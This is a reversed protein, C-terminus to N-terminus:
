ESRELLARAHQALALALYAQSESDDFTSGATQHSKRTKGLAADLGRTAYSQDAYGAVLSLSRASGSVSGTVLPTPIPTGSASFAAKWLKPIGGGAVGMRERTPAILLANLTTAWQTLSQPRSKGVQAFWNGLAAQNDLVLQFGRRSDDATPAGLDSAAHAFFAAAQATAAVNFDDGRRLVLGAVAGQRRWGFREAHLASAAELAAERYRGRDTAAFADILALGASATTLPDALAHATSGYFGIGDGVPIQAALIRESFTITLRRAGPAATALFAIASAEVLPILTETPLSDAQPAYRGILELAAAASQRGESTQNPPPPVRGEFRKDHSSCGVVLIALAAVLVFACRSM